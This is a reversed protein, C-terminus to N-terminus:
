KNLKLAATVCVRYSSGHTDQVSEFLVVETVPMALDLAWDPGPVSALASRVLTIHPRLPRTEVPVQVSELLLDLRERLRLLAAVPRGEAVLLRGQPSPFLHVRDLPQVFSACGACVAGLRQGLLNARDRSIDGLFALTLHFNRALVPRAQANGLAVMGRDRQDLLALALHHEVPIGLFCRM